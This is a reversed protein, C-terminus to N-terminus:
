DLEVFNTRNRGQSKSLYLAEDVKSYLEKSCIPSSTIGFGCSITVVNYPPNALHPIDLSEISVRISEILALMDEPNRGVIKIFFEEGGVRFGADNSRNLLEGISEGINRLVSDGASHGYNDNYLKFHDIDFLALGVLADPSAQHTLTEFHSEFTNRNWLGTLSDLHSYKADSIDTFIWLRTQGHEPDDFATTRRRYVRGDKLLVEDEMETKTLHLKEILEIFGMPDVVQELAYRMLAHGEDDLNVDLPIGWLERFRNNTYLMRRQDTVILIGDPLADMVNKLLDASLVNNNM